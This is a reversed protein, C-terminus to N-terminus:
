TGILSIDQRDAAEPSSVVASLKLLFCWSSKLGRKAGLCSIAHAHNSSCLPSLQPTFEASGWLHHSQAQMEAARLFICPVPKENIGFVPVSAAIWRRTHTCCFPFRLFPPTGLEGDSTPILFPARNILQRWPLQADVAHIQESSKASCLFYRYRRYSGWWRHIKSVQSVLSCFNHM